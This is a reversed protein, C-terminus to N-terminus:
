AFIPPFFIRGSIQVNQRFYKWKNYDLLQIEHEHLHKEKFNMWRTVTNCVLDFQSTVLFSYEFVTHQSMFSDTHTTYITWVVIYGSTDM